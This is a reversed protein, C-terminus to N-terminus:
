HFNHTPCALLLPEVWYSLCRLGEPGPPAMVRTPGMHPQPVGGSGAQSRQPTPGYYRGFVPGGLLQLVGFTTQLYGFTISDM